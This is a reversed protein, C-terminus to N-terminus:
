DGEYYDEAETPFVNPFRVTKSEEKTLLIFRGCPLESAAFTLFEGEVVFAEEIYPGGEIRQLDTWMRTLVTGIPVTQRSNSLEAVLAASILLRAFPDAEPLKWVEVPTFAPKPDHEKLELVASREVTDNEDIRFSEHNITEIQLQFQSHGEDELLPVTKMVKFDIIPDELCHLIHSFYKSKFAVLVGKHRLSTIAYCDLDFRLIKRNFALPTVDFSRTLDIHTSNLIKM